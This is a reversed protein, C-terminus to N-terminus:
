RGTSIELSQTKQNRLFMLLYRVLFFPWFKGKPSDLHNEYDIHLKQRRIRNETKRVPITYRYRSFRYKTRFFDTKRSNFFICWFVGRWKKNFSTNQYSLYVIHLFLPPDLHITEWLASLFVSFQFILTLYM